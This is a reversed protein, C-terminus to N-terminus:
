VRILQDLWRGKNIAALLGFTLTIVASLTMAYVALAITIPVRSLVLQSVPQRFTLSTGMEGRVLGSIFLWYQEPLPRNLGLQDHLEAINQVTGRDGLLMAAPDGPLFRVMGFVLITVGFLVFVMLFLRNRIYTARGM